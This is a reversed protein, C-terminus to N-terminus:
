NCRSHGLNSEQMEFLSAHSHLGTWTWVVRDVCISGRMTSTGFHVSLPGRVKRRVHRRQAGAFFLAFCPMDAVPSGRIGNPPFIFGAAERLRFSVRQREERAQNKMTQQCPSKGAPRRIGALRERRCLGCLLPLSRGMFLPTNGNRLRAKSVCRSDAVPFGRGM